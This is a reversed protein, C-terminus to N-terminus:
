KINKLKGFCKLLNQPKSTRSYDGAGTGTIGRYKYV